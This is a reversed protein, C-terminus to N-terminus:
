IYTAMKLARANEYHFVGTSLQIVEGTRIMVFAEIKLGPDNEVLELKEAEDANIKVVSLVTDIFSIQLSEHRNIYTFISTRATEEDLEPLLSLNFYNYEYVYPKHDVHRVRVVYLLPSGVPIEMKSALDEDAEVKDFHLLRSTVPLPAMYYTLGYINELNLSYAPKTRRLFVGSGQIPFCYGRKVLLDIANRITNRSVKYEAIYADETLLKRTVNYRGDLIDKEIASFVERYKAAM